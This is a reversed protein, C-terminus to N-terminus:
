KRKSVADRFGYDAAVAHAANTLQRRNSNLLRSFAQSGADLRHAADREVNRRNTESVALLAASLVAALLLLFTVAIRTRLAM